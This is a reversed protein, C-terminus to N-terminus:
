SNDLFSKSDLLDVVYPFFSGGKLASKWYADSCNYSKSLKSPSICWKYFMKYCDERYSM